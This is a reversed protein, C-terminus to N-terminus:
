IAKLAKKIQEVDCNKSSLLDLILMLESTKEKYKVLKEIDEKIERGLLFSVIICTKKIFDRSDKISLKSLVIRQKANEFAEMELKIAKVELTDIEIEIEEKEKKSANKSLNEIRRIIQYSIEKLDRKANYTDKKAKLINDLAEQWNEKEFINSNDIEKEEIIRKIKDEKDQELYKITILKKIADAKLRTIEDVTGKEEDRIM